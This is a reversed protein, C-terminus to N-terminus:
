VVLKLRLLVFSGPFGGDCVEVGQKVVMFHKSFGVLRCFGKYINLIVVHSYNHYCYIINVIIIVVFIRIIVM